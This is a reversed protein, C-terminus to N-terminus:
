SLLKIDLQIIEQWLKRSEKELSTGKSKQTLATALSSIRRIQEADKKSVRHGFKPEM